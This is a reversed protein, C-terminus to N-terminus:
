PDKRGRRGFLRGLLGPRKAPALEDRDMSPAAPLAAAPTPEVSGSISALDIEELGDDWEAAEATRHLTHHARLLEATGFPRSPRFLNASAGQGGANASTEPQYAPELSVLFGSLSAEPGEVRISEFRAVFGPEQGDLSPESVAAIVEAEIIAAGQSTAYREHLTILAGVPPVISAKFIGGGIGIRRSVAFGSEDGAAVRFRLARSSLTFRAQLSPDPAGSSASSVSPVSRDPPSSV